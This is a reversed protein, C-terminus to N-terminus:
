LAARHLEDGKEGSQEDREYRQDDPAIGCLDDRRGNL